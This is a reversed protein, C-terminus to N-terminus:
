GKSRLQLTTTYGKASWNHEAYYIYFDDSISIKSINATVAKHATLRYDGLITINLQKTLRNLLKLNYDAANDAMSQSDLIPWFLGVSKYYGAPLYPSSEKAEASIGPAGVVVVRNRLDKEDETYTVDLTVTDTITTVISDATWGPQNDDPDGVAMFYPKRNKFKITGTPPDAWLHWALIDAIGNCYDYM